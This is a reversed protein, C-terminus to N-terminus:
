HGTLVNDCCTNFLSLRLFFFFFFDAHFMPGKENELFFFFFFTKMMMMSIALFFWFNLLFRKGTETWTVTLDQKNAPASGKKVKVQPPRKRRQGTSEYDFHKRLAFVVMQLAGSTQKNTSLSLFCFGWKGTFIEVKGDDNRPVKVLRTWIPDTQGTDPEPITFHSADPKWSPWPSLVQFGAFGTKRKMM